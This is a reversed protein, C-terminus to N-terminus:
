WTVWQKRGRRIGKLLSWLHLDCRNRKIWRCKQGDVASGTPTPFCPSFTPFSLGTGTTTFAGAAVQPGPSRTQPFSARECPHGTTLVNSSSCLPFSWGRVGCQIGEIVLNTKRPQLQTQVGGRMGFRGKFVTDEASSSLREM